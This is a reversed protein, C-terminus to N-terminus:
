NDSGQREQGDAVDETEDARNMPSYPTVQLQSGKLYKLGPSPLIYGFASSLLILWLEQNPSQFSLHYLSAAIIGYVVIVQAIFTVTNKPVRRICDKSPDSSYVSASRNIEGRLGSEALNVNFDYTELGEGSRKEMSLANTKNM